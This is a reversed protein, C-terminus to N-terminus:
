GRVRHAGRGAPQGQEGDDHRGARRLGRQGVRGRRRGRDRRRTGVDIARHLAVPLEGPLLEGGAIEGRGRRLPLDQGQEGRVVRFEPALEVRRACGRPATRLLLEVRRAGGLAAALGLPRDLEVDLRQGEIRGAGLRRPCQALEIPLLVRANLLVAGRPRFGVGHGRAGRHRRAGHM